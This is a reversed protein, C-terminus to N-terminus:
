DLSINAKKVLVAYREQESKIFAASAEPTMPNIVNEQKAMAAVAEPSAFAAVIADYLRQRDAAPLKAPAVFAFWGGIVVSPFGQEMMTSVDPLSVSRAKGMMGVARLAGSKLHGQVAPLAVVGFDVQGGILDSMMPGTGKYPIHQVEIGAADVIM